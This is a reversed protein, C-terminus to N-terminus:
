RRWLPWDGGGSAAAVVTALLLQALLALAPAWAIIRIWPRPRM